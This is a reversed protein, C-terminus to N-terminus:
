PSSASRGAACTSLGPSAGGYGPKRSENMSGFTSPRGCGARPSTDRGPQSTSATRRDRLRVLGVTEYLYGYSFRRARLRCRLSCYASAWRTRFRTSLIKPHLLVM